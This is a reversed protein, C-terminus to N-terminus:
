PAAPQTSAPAPSVAEQPRGVKGLLALSHTRLDRAPQSDPDLKLVTDLTEIAPGYAGLHYDAFARTYLLQPDQPSHELARAALDRALEAEGMPILLSALEWVYLPTWNLTELCNDRFEHVLAVIRDHDIGRLIQERTFPRGATALDLECGLVGLACLCRIDVFSPLESARTFADAAEDPRHASLYVVGKLLFTHGSPAIRTWEDITTVFQEYRGMAMTNLAGVLGGSLRAFCPPLMSGMEALPNNDMDAARQIAVAAETVEFVLATVDTQGPLRGESAARLGDVANGLAVTAAAIAAVHEKGVHDAIRALSQEVARDNGAVASLLAYLTHLVPDEPELNLAQKVERRGDEIRGLVLQILGLMVVARRNFPDAEIAEYFHAAAEPMTEDLLGLAFARDSPALTGTDLAEQIMEAGDATGGPLQNMTLYGLWLLVGGRHEGLDDRTGLQEALELAESDRYVSYLAEVRGLEMEVRDTYGGAIALEYYKLAATWDGRRAALRASQAQTEALRREVEQQAREAEGRAAKEATLSRARDREASTARLAWWTSTAVGLLLTVVVAATGGVLARNRAAFKRLQYWTSPPRASIPENNLVRQLDDVFASMSSYRRNKDKELAKLIVTEIDGALLRSRRSSGAATDRMRSPEEERIVQLAQPISNPLRYPLRGTLLEYAVVGMAYVDSRTDLEAPDGGAQEPSMYPITGVLQGVDTRLTTTQIDADTARAVGFDLVKARGREDVLVNGPKLDRHIVGQQHAYQVAEGIQGLLKLRERVGLGEKKAFELLSRGRVREMAFYPQDGGEASAMGAEYIQAVGPHQLRGLVHAEQAFRRRMEASLAGSRVVKLAVVRRPNDQEAEYVVGMGGRGIFGLIRYRGIQDPLPGHEGSAAPSTRSDPGISSQRPISSM